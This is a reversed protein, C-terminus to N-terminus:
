SADDCPTSFLTISTEARFDVTVNKRCARRYHQQKRTLEIVPVVVKLFGVMFRSM